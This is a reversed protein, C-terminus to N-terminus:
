AVITALLDQTPFTIMDLAETIGSRRFGAKIIEQGRNRQFLDFIQM